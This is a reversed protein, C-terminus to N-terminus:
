WFSRCFRMDELYEKHKRARRRRKIRAPTLVRFIRRVARTLPSSYDLADPLFM